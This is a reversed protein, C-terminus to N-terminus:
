YPPHERKLCTRELDFIHCHQFRQCQPSIGTINMIKKVKSADTLVRPKGGPAPNLNVALCECDNKVIVMDHSKTVLMHM